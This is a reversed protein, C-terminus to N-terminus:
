ENNLEKQVKNYLADFNKDLWEDVTAPNWDPIISILKRMDARSEWQYTAIMHEPMPTTYVQVNEAGFKRQVSKAIDEFTQPKGTGINFIGSEKSVKLALMADICDDISIFDRSGLQGNHHWVNLRRQTIAQEMYRRVPSCQRKHGENRGYVNFFRVGQVPVSFKRSLAWNDVTLKSVGYLHQPQVPGYEPSEVWPGYVSASSAYTIGCGQLEAFEIWGQTADINKNILESWDMADTSSVAGMHFIWEIPEDATWTHGMTEWDIGHVKYGKAQLQEKLESGIFGRDGTVIIM